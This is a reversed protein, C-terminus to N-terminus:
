GGFARDIARRVDQDNPTPRRFADGKACRECTGGDQYTPERCVSCPAPDDKWSERM